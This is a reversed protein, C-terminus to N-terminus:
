TKMHQGPNIKKWTESDLRAGRVRSSPLCKYEYKAYTLRV